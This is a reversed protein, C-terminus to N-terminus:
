PEMRVGMVAAVADLVTEPSLGTLCETHGLPCVHRHCPRCPVERLVARYPGLTEYPFWVEPESSGFVGVTPTGAAVSVHMIGGDCAVLADLCSIVAAVARVPLPALATAAAGVEDLLAQTHREEGPGTLVLVRADLRERVLRVLAAFKGTPWRKVSWKGGPHVGVVPAGAAVGARALVAHAAALEDDGFTLSPRMAEVPPEIGLCRAYELHFRTAERVSSPVRVAHTYLRRRGRRDGGVRTGAGCLRTIWASRPNAFLDVAARYHRARLLRLLRLTEVVGAGHSLRYVRGFRPEPALLDAGPSRALYDVEVGPAAALITDVLPLTLVADGLYDLRTVLVRDGPGLHIPPRVPTM